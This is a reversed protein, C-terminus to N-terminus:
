QPPEPTVNGAGEVERGVKDNEAILLRSRGRRGVEVEEM